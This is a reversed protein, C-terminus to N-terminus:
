GTQLVWLTFVLETGRFEKMDGVACHWSYLPSEMFTLQNILKGFPNLYVLRWDLNWIRWLARRVPAAQLSGPKEQDIVRSTQPESTM